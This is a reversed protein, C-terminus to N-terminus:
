PRVPTREATRAHVVIQALDLGIGGIILHIEVHREALVAVDVVPVDHTMLSIRWLLRIMLCHRSM